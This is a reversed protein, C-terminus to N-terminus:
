TQDPKKVQTKDPCYNLNKQRGSQRSCWEQSKKKKLQQQATKKM